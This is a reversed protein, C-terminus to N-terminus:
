RASTQLRELRRCRASRGRAAEGGGGAKLTLLGGARSFFVGSLETPASWSASIGLEPNDVALSVGESGIQRGHFLSVETDGNLRHRIVGAKGAFSMKGDTYDVDDDTEFVYDDSAATKVHVYPLPPQGRVRKGPLIRVDARHTVLAVHSGGGKIMTSLSGRVFGSKPVTLNISDEGGRIPHIFPMEDDACINWAFRTGCSELIRDHTIIYDTGVLMVSRGQYEPWSYAGAGGEPVVEAFQACGLNYFPRILENMGVSSFHWNKYVGTNCTFMADDVHGDGAEEREHGSYSKGGAYYYIDGSGNQNAYGWRYNPGKDVQQLFISIEDPTDVGARLVIGYGTYKASKLHPNTGRDVVPVNQCAREEFGKGAAPFAGWMMHEATLPRFKRLQDGILYMPGAAGRKSSHAGQPPHIRKFGNEWTQPASTWPAHNDNSQPSTLIGVLYDGM